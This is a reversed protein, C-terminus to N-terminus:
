QALSRGTFTPALLKSSSGTDVVVGVLGAGELGELGAFVGEAALDVGVAPQGAVVEGRFLAAVDDGGLDGGAGDGIGAADEEVQAARGPLVVADALRDLGHEVEFPDVGGEEVADLAAAGGVPLPAVHHRAARRGGVLLRDEFGEEGIEGVVDAVDQVVRGREGVLALAALAVAGALALRQREEGLGAVALLAARRTPGFPCCSRKSIMYALGSASCYREGKTCSSPPMPM